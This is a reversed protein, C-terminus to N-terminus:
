KKVQSCNNLVSLISTKLNHFSVPHSMAFRLLNAAAQWDAAENSDCLDLAAHGNKDLANQTYICDIMNIEMLDILMFLYVKRSQLSM